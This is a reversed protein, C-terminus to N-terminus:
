RLKEEVYYVSTNIRVPELGTKQCFREVGNLGEATRPILEGYDARLHGEIRKAGMVVGAIERVHRFLTPGIGKGREGQMVHLVEMIATRSPHHMKAIAFGVTARTEPHFAAVEIAGDPLDKIQIEHSIEAM